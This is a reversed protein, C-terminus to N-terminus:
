YGNSFTNQSTHIFDKGLIRTNLKAMRHCDTCMGLNKVIRITVSPGTKIFGLAMALRESHLYLRSEKDEEELDIFVESIDPSYGALKLDRAMEELKSYIEESEPHSQDGTHLYLRSEKDEEELDIFVESIDPSYGALKLDRAMEELKSYIEESEPHSQDGTHLYLRSEKDEEELDIFVESIDPSYGALKLDRAMEELKSYIEESEPHSQDGTHLYLRSEKDEEELDIFVESIDPSYGALKLDRAMEELKSYIEESEPHSQDGTHLYLRSEKDEEELDIFVESIDPSYGALKLDRAMEELKSYIEESEPHSQDGTHLYLRSEKDEEELDIFVESIDPSYGALKLDRAMEELKSYIEESEPHSQDGTHLYLRSEKDEEELDIFVESIDPSYDALKLDRAMEELKTYIEESEPHSQDGTHLYLRSEKDEEELDIFVESIDPSYGALKLDRAMEELKSYIEESEPHSQDGTHLYLRSEKDEEELDIFVESIDPSYGALKLDRAMEELKSYIEESEPHSQDGTHLYLRSEKDEEELDIFVESIDPSYGALKLDRAMEELKSYIEESEPHSQDGTHLYLRSEKDEEELDIFVESIDPSYDALKLDRAMEELKTYIEESEPHSQDGTHLYLRSEKDEEELDIFVESIDPSYGALKLDRAM